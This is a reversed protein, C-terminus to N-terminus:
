DYPLYMPIHAYKFIYIYAFVHIHLISSYIYICPYTFVHIHLYSNVQNNEACPNVNSTSDELLYKIVHLHGQRCAWSLNLHKKFQAADLAKMLGLYGFTAIFSLYLAKKGSRPADSQVIYQVLGVNGYKLAVFLSLAPEVIATARLREYDKPSGFASVFYLRFDADLNPAQDPSLCVHRRLFYVQSEFAGAGGYARFERVFREEPCLALTWPVTPPLYLRLITSQPLTYLYLLIEVHCDRPIAPCVRSIIHDYYDVILEHCSLHEEMRQVSQRIGELSTSPM